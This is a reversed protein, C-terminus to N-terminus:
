SPASCHGRSRRKARRRHDGREGVGALAGGGCREPVGQDFGGLGVVPDDSQGGVEALVGVHVDEGLCIRLPVELHPHGLLQQEARRRAHGLGTQNGEGGGIRHEGGAPGVVEDTEVDGLRPQVDVDDPAQGPQGRAVSRRVLRGLVHGDEPTYRPQRDDIRAVGDVDLLRHRLEDLGRARGVQPQQAAMHRRHEVLVVVGEFEALGLHDPGPSIVM